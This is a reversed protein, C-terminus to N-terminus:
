NFQLDFKNLLWIAHTSFKPLLVDFCSRISLMVTAKKWIALGPLSGLIGASMTLEPRAQFQRLM